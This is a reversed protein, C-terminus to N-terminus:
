STKEQAEHAEDQRRKWKSNGVFDYKDRYQLLPSGIGTASGNRRQVYNTGSCKEILKNLSELAQAYERVTARFEQAAPNAKLAKEGQTTTLLQALPLDNYVPTQEEIKKQLTEVAKALTRVESQMEPPVNKCLADIDM